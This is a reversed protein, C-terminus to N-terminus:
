RWSAQTEPDVLGRSLRLRALGALQSAFLEGARAGSGNGLPLRSGRGGGPACALWDGAGLASTSASFPQAHPAPRRQHTGSLDLREGADRLRRLAQQRPRDPTSWLLLGWADVARVASQLGAACAEAPAGRGAQLTPLVLGLSRALETSSGAPEALALRQHPPVV